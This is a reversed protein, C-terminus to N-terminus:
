LFPRHYYSTPTLPRSIRATPVSCAIWCTASFEDSDVDETGYCCFMCLVTNRIYNQVFSELAIEYFKWGFVHGAFLFYKCRQMIGSRYREDSHLRENSAILQKNVKSTSYNPRLVQQVKHDTEENAQLLM